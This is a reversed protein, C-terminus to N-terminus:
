EINERGPPIKLRASCKPCRGTLGAYKGAIKIKQGCRCRFRIFRQAPRASESLGAGSNQAQEQLRPPDEAINVTKEVTQAVAKEGIWEQQWPKVDGRAEARAPVNSKQLGLLELLSTEDREMVIIKTKLLLVALAFGAGFGGIHALYAVGGGGELAGWIDFVFWLLIIWFSRVTFWWPRFYFIFFCSISNEPFFVLYMGVMGNIAGSAGLAPVDSFLLHSFAAALGCLVYIPLYLANGIKSCVANGFLWLFILNGILHLVGGHLWMHGFLGRVGWGDLLWRGTIGGREEPAEFAFGSESNPDATIVIPQNSYARLDPLQMCFVLIVGAVVVWNVVPRHNFPVDVRYPIFM